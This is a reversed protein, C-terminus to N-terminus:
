VRELLLVDQVLYQLVSRWVHKTGVPYVCRSGKMKATYMLKLAGAGADKGHGTFIVGLKDLGRPLGSAAALPQTDVWARPQDGGVLRQYGEADFGAANHAAFTCGDHIWGRLMEPVADGDDVYLCTDDRVVNAPWLSELPLDFTGPYRGRPIWLLLDRGRKAGLCM